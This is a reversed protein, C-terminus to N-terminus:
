RSRATNFVRRVHADHAERARAANIVIKHQLRERLASVANDNGATMWVIAM